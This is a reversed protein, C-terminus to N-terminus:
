GPYDGDQYVTEIYRQEGMEIIRASLPKRRAMLKGIVVRSLWEMM